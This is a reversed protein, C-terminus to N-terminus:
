AKSSASACQPSESGCHDNPSHCPYGEVQRRWLQSYLGGQALLEAHRGREHIRGKDLVIIDDADMVTSLRHAVILTTTGAASKKIAQLVEAETRSDLMSTPEDLLFVAPRRLLARAIALRQREGGSLKLGREGVVTEYQDPLSKVLEDLQAAAAARTIDNEGAGRHGLAINSAISAHLLTTDQPVLAFLARLDAVPLSEIPRGDLLIRGSQPAYLRLLLRILSSKGSGSPGVVATTSGAAIELDLERIVPRGPEYGFTLGEFRIPMAPRCASPQQPTGPHHGPESLENLVDLLPRVYGLARALDRAATGLIELPRMMQLLYVSSLVLGGVSLSGDAVRDASVVLCATLSLGFVLTAALTTGVSVRYYGRWRGTLRSCAHMFVQEADREAGFCRLTEVNNLSDALQGHVAMSAETVARVHRTLKMAGAAFVALYLLATVCFLVLLIPQQLQALVLAMVMLEVAVPACSSILHTLLLQAGAGGLDLSHQLEGSRRRLLGALPLRLVHLFFRQRLATTLRQEIENALIPRVDGVIRGGCLVAVYLAAPILVAAATLAGNSASDAAADIMHKLALPALAALVGGLIVVLATGVIYLRLRRDTAEVLLQLLPRLTDGFPVHRQGTLCQHRPQWRGGPEVM